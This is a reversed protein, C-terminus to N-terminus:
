LRGCIIRTSIHQTFHMTQSHSIRAVHQLHVSQSIDSDSKKDTQENTNTNNNPYIYDVVSKDPNRHSVSFRHSHIEYGGGSVNYIVLIQDSLTASTSGDMMYPWGYVLPTGPIQVLSDADYNIDTANYPTTASIDKSQWEDFLPNYHWVDATSLRYEVQHPQSASPAEGDFLILQNNYLAFGFLHMPYPLTYNSINVNNVIANSLTMTMSVFYIIITAFSSM